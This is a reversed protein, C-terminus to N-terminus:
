RAFDRQDGGIGRLITAQPSTALPFLSAILVYFVMVLVVEARSRNAILLDRRCAWALTRGISPATAIAEATAVKTAEKTNM